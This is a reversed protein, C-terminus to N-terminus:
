DNNNGKKLEIELLYRTKMGVRSDVWNAIKQNQTGQWGALVDFILFQSLSHAGLAAINDNLSVEKNNAQLMGKVISAPVVRQHNSINSPTLLLYFSSDSLNILDQLQKRNITWSSTFKNKQKTLAKVQIFLYKEFQIKTSINVLIKLAIDPGKEKEEKLRLKSWSLAWYDNKSKIYKNLEKIASEFAPKLNDDFLDRILDDERENFSSNYEQAFNTEAKLSANYLLHEVNFDNLWTNGSIPELPLYLDRLEIPSPINQKFGINRFIKDIVSGTSSFKDNKTESYSELIKIADDSICNSFIAVLETTIENSFAKIIWYTFIDLLEGADKAVESARLCYTDINKSWKESAITEIYHIFDIFAKEEKTQEILVFNQDNFIKGSSKSNLHFRLYSFIYDFTNRFEMKSYSEIISHIGSNFVQIETRYNSKCNSILHFLISNMFDYDGKFSKVELFYDIYASLKEKKTLTSYYAKELAEIKNSENKKLFLFYPRLLLKEINDAEFEHYAISCLYTLEIINHWNKSKINSNLFKSWESSYNRTNLLLFATLDTATLDIPKGEMLANQIEKVISNETDSSTWFLTAVFRWFAFNQEEGTKESIYKSFDDTTCYKYKVDPKNVYHWDNLHYNFGDLFNENEELDSAIGVFNSEPFSIPKIKKNNIEILLESLNLRKTKEDNKM